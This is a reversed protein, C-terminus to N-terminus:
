VDMLYDVSPRSVLQREVDPTEIKSSAHLPKSHRAGEQASHLPVANLVFGTCPIPLRNKLRTVNHDPGM